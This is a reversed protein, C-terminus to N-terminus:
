PWAMQMHFNNNVLFSKGNNMPLQYELSETPSLIAKVKYLLLEFKTFTESNMEIVSYPDLSKSPM